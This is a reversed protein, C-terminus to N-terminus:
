QDRDIATKLDELMEDFDDTSVSNLEEPLLWMSTADLHALFAENGGEALKGESWEMYGPIELLSYDRARKQLDLSRRAIEKDSPM